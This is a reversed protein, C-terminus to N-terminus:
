VKHKKVKGNNLLIPWNNQAQRINERNLNLTHMKPPLVTSTTKYEPQHRMNLLMQHQNVDVNMVQNLHHRVPKEVTFNSNKGKSNILLKPPTM